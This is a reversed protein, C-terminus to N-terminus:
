RITITGQFAGNDPQLHDHYGCTRTANLPQTQRSEGSPLSGINLEPCENHVPHPNSSLEVTRGANNVVTVRAGVGVAISRNDMGAPTLTLTTTEV